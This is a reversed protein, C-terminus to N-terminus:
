MDQRLVRLPRRAGGAACPCVWMAAGPGPHPACAAADPPAAPPLATKPPTAPRGLCGWGRPLLSVINTKQSQSTQPSVAAGAGARCAAASPPASGRGAGWPTSCPHAGWPEPCGRKYGHTGRTLCTHTGWGSHPFPVRHQLFQPSPSAAGAWPLVVHGGGKPPLRLAHLTSAGGGSAPPPVGPTGWHPSPGPEGWELACATLDAIAEPGPPILAPTQAGAGGGPVLPALVAPTSSSLSVGEWPLRGAMDGAARLAALGPGPLASTPCSPHHPPTGGSEGAPKWHPSAPPPRAWRRWCGWAPSKPRSSPTCSSSSLSLAPTCTWRRPPSISLLM